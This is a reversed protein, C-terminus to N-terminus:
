WRDPDISVLKNHLGSLGGVEAMAVVCLITLGVIMLVLNHPMPGSLRRIGGAYCYAVVLVFGILIGTTEPWGLMSNSRWVELLLNHQPMYQWSFSQYYQPLRQKTSRNKARYLHLYHVCIEIEYRGKPHVQIVMDLCSTPRHDVGFCDMNSFLRLLSSGLLGLSCIGSNWTSVGSLRLLHLTCVEALLWIIM